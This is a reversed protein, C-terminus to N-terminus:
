SASPENCNSKNPRTYSLRCSTVGKLLLDWVLYFHKPCTKRLDLVTLDAVVCLAIETKRSLSNSSRADEQGAPVTAPLRYGRLTLTCCPVLARVLLVRPLHDRRHRLQLVATQTTIPVSLVFLSVVFEDCDERIRPRGKKRNNVM